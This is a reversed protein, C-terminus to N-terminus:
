TPHKSKLRDCLGFLENWEQRTRIDEVTWSQNQLALWRKRVQKSVAVKEDDIFGAHRLKALNDEHLYTHAGVDFEEFLDYLIEEDSRNRVDSSGRGVTDLFLEYLEGVPIETM